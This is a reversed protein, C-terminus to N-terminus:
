WREYDTIDVTTQRTGSVYTITAYVNSGIGSTNDCIIEVGDEDPYESILDSLQRIQNHTLFM